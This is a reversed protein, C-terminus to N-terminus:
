EGNVFINLKEGDWVIKKILLRLITRKEPLSLEDFRNKLTALSHAISELQPETDDAKVINNQYRRRQATLRDIEEKLISARANIKGVMAPNFGQAIASVLNNMEEDAKKIQKDIAIVPNEPVQQILNQRMKELHEFLLSGEKTYRRLENCVADDTKQGPLNQCDCMVTGGSMKMGCIYDYQTKDTRMSATRPKSFMRSGCKECVLLGSLLSYDNRQKTCSEKDSGDKEFTEQISVWQKACIIAPHKGVAIIWQDKSLRPSGKQKYDRKNYSMLGCRPNCSSEDFCMDSDCSKFYKLADLDAACYVPNQLIGKIGLNSFSKGDRSKIGNRLLHKYVGAISQTEAYRSYILRVTKIELSEIKLKSSTKTKGDIIVDAVKESSFGTPPPGGLWRGTRALLMMNDRVREAISDREMEAFIAALYSFIKGFSTSTDFGEKVCILHIGRDMLDSLLSAFDAVSRSLRDLRYVVLYDPKLTRLNIMMKQFYPREVNKGSYGSDWYEKIEANEYEDKCIISRIHQRCLELQNDISEGKGTYVSKRAYILIRLNDDEKM